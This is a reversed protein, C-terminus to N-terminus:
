AAMELLVPLHDSAHVSEMTRVSVDELTHPCLFLDLTKRPHSAPFTAGAPAVIRLGCAQALSQLEEIGRFINFDGCVIVNERERIMAKLEECQLRRVRRGLAFHVVFLSLDPRLRVNYILKKTGHTFYLKEFEVTGKSFFGNCNDRFFPLRRLVSRRGYKNEVDGCVYAHPHVMSRKKRHVEVFCCVDPQERQMLQYISQRVRRIIRRPTYLYRYFRLVYDRLSGNLDTAYGVNYLLIRFKQTQAPMQRSTLTYPINYINYLLNTNKAIIALKARVRDLSWYM